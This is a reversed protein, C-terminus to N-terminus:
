EYFDWDFPIKAHCFCIFVQTNYKWTLSSVLYLNFFLITLILAASAQIDQIKTEVISDFKLFPLDWVQEVRDTGM